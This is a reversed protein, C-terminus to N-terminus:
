SDTLQAGRRSLLWGKPISWLHSSSKDMITAHMQSFIIFSLIYNNESLVYGRQM